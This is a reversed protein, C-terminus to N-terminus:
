RLNISYLNPQNGLSRNFNTAIILREGESAPLVFGNEFSGSYVTSKNTGDKEVISIAEKEVLIIHQSDPYWYYQDAQPLEFTTEKVTPDPSPRSDYVTVKTPQGESENFVLFRKQDPSFQIKASSTAIQRGRDPLNSILENREAVEEEDWIRQTNGITASIDNLPDRNLQDSNLLFVNPRDKFRIVVSKSEPAWSYDSESFNFGNADRIIQKPDKSFILPRDNLDLVWLGTKDGDKVSYVIKNQDPSYKPNQVGSFTLASLDPVSRFLVIELPTVVEKKVEVEKEWPTYGDKTVRINYTGPSLNDITNNTATVLQGNIYVSAQPPLSSVSIIGTKTLTREKFDFNYGQAFLIVVTGVVLLVILSFLFYLLRRNLRVKRTASTMM